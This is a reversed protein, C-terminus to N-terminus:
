QYDLFSDNREWSKMYASSSVKLYRFFMVVYADFVHHSLGRFEPPSRLQAAHPQERPIYFRMAFNFFKRRAELPFFEWVERFFLKGCSMLAINESGM